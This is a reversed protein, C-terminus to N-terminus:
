TVDLAEDVQLGNVSYPVRFPCIMFSQCQDAGRKYPPYRKIDSRCHSPQLLVFTVGDRVLCDFVMLRADKDFSLHPGPGSQQCRM